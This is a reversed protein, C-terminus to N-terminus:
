TDHTSVAIPPNPPPICRDLAIAATTAAVPMTTAPEMALTATTVGGATEIAWLLIALADAENDDAPSFGRAKIAALM